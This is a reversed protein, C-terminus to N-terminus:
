YKNLSYISSAKMLNGMNLNSYYQKSFCSAACTKEEFSLTPTNSSKVCTKFCENTINNTVVGIFDLFNVGEFTLHNM